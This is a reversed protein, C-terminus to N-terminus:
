SGASDKQRLRCDSKATLVTAKATGFTVEVGDPGTLIVDHDAPGDKFPQLDTAGLKAAADEVIKLAKPWLPDPTPGSFTAVVYAQVGKTHLFEAGCGRWSNEEITWTLDPVLAAIQNATDTVVATYQQQAAEFSPRERLRADPDSPAPSATSNSGSEADEKDTTSTRGNLTVACLAAALLGTVPRVTRQIRDHTPRARRRSRGSPNSRRHTASVACGVVAADAHGKAASPM